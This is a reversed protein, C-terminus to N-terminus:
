GNKIRRYFNKANQTTTEEIIQPTTSLLEAMKDRILYIYSPRNLKGRYPVPTMYPCDTELLLRDMPISKLVEEKRKAFTIAGGFSYYCDMKNYIDRALEASGSYCHLLVNHRLYHKNDILIRNIDEYADRLHIVVPLKLSDAIELQEIFEKRQKDRDSLDYYYDLGTEGWAVAKPLQALKIMQEYMQTTALRADHPHLGVTFYCDEYKEALESGIIASELDYAANIVVGVNHKRYDLVVEDIISLLRLDNLHAHSDILM